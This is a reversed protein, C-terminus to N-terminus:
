PRELVARCRQTVLDAVVSLAEHRGALDAVEDMVETVSGHLREAVERLVATIARSSQDLSRALKDIAARDLAAVNPRGGLSIALKKDLFTYAETCVVDYAPALRLGESQYLLSLNKAHGDNNGILGNCVAWRLLYDLDELPFVSHKRIIEKMDALGPGGESEYKQTPRRGSAQCFDEQHVRMISDEGQEVRDYRHTEFLEPALSCVGSEVTPMGASKMLRLCALENQLLGPFRAREKKVLVNSAAGNLPLYYSGGKKLFVLKDQAGSMSQRGQIHARLYQDTGGQAEDFLLRVSEASLDSYDDEAPPPHDEPWLSVAGACEGGISGLLRVTESPDFRGALALLNRTEAEPLLNEFFPASDRDDFPEERVPLRVSLQCRDAHALAHANYTFTLREREDSVLDGVCESSLYVNLRM